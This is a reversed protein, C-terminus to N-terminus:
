RELPKGWIELNMLDYASADVTAYGSTFMYNISGNRTDGGTFAGHMAFNGIGVETAAPSADTWRNFAFLTEAANRDAEVPNFVRYVQMVGYNGSAAGNALSAADNWDWKALSRPAGAVNGGVGVGGFTFQLYGGVGTADPPTTRIGGDNSCVQLNEVAGFRCYHTPVDMEGILKHESWADMSVWVYRVHQTKRNRLELYYAVRSLATTEFAPSAKTYVLETNRMRARDAKAPLALTRLRRYGRRYELPVNAAAGTATNKVWPQVPATKMSAIAALVGRLWESSTLDHGAWNPHLDGPSKFYMGKPETKRPCARNLDVLFVRDAPFAGKEGPKLAVQRRILANYADDWNHGDMDPITSVVIKVNPRAKLIREVLEKWAAFTREVTEQNPGGNLDNTGIMLTMIDIDGAADLTAELAERWGGNVGRPGGYSATRVRAGSVGAHWRYEAPAIVGSSDTAYRNDFACERLGTAVPKYGAAALKQMLPVRYNPNAAYVGPHKSTGDTLSDGLPLIRITPADRDYAGIKLILQRCGANEAPAPVDEVTYSRAGVDVLSKLAAADLGLAEGSWTLLTFKGLTCTAYAPSLRLKAGAAFVPKADLRLPAKIPDVDVVGKFEAACAFASVLALILSSYKM